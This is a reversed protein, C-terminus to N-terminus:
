TKAQDEVAYKAREYNGWFTNWDSELIGEAAERVEPKDTPTGAWGIAREYCELAAKPNSLEQSEKLVGMLNWAEAATRRADRLLSNAAKNMSRSKIYGQLLPNQTPHPIPNTNNYGDPYNLPLGTLAHAVRESSEAASALWQTSIAASQKQAHLVEALHISIISSRQLLYLAHLAQPPSASALSEPPRISRLLKLSAEEVSQAQNLQGSMAYFASLSVLITSLTRQAIPSSPASDPVQPILSDTASSEGRTLLIARSWWALANDAQGIRSNLDGLKVAIRAANIGKGPLGAWIREYESKAESLHSTGLRELVTAHRALLETITQPHLKGASHKAEALSVASRLFDETRQLRADIVKLGGPGPLGEGVNTDTGVVATSYGVGWNQAMWAARVTHRGKFGLASDTGGRVADGSWKGAELDWQWARVEEDNEPALEVNEVWIHAGEYVTAAAAGLFLLGVFSFKVTRKMVDLVFLTHKAFNEEVFVSPEPTTDKRWPTPSESSKSEYRRQSAGIRWRPPSRRHVSISLGRKLM